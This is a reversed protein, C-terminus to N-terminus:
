SLITIEIFARNFKRINIMRKIMNIMNIMNIM